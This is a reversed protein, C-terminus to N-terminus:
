KEFERTTRYYRIMIFPGWEGQFLHSSLDYAVEWMKDHVDKEDVVAWERINNIISAARKTRTKAKNFRGEAITRGLKYSYNDKTICVAGAASLTNRDRDWEGYVTVGGSHHLRDTELNRLRYHAYMKKM